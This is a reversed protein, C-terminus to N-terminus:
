RVEFARANGRAVQEEEFKKLLEQLQVQQEQNFNESFKLPVGGRAETIAALNKISNNVSFQAENKATNAFSSFSFLVIVISFIYKLMKNRGLSILNM